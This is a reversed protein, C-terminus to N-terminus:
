QKNQFACQGCVSPPPERERLFVQAAPSALLEPITNERLDGMRLEDLAYFDCPYVSGDSEVVLQVCCQGTLGCANVQGHVLLNIVDDFFKISIYTGRQFADLWQPFLGNYFQAFRQPTLAYQSPERADLADLCHIFQVIANWIRQPHRAMDNTLVALVNYEVGMRRMLTRGQNVREFIGKGFTDL